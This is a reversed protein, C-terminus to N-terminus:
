VMELLSGVFRTQRRRLHTHNHVVQHPPNAKAFVEYLGPIPACLDGSVHGGDVLIINEPLVVKLSANGDSKNSSCALM